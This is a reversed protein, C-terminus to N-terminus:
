DGRTWYESLSHVTSRIRLWIARHVQIWFSIARPTSLIISVCISYHFKHQSCQLFKLQCWEINNKLKNISQLAITLANHSHQVVPRPFSCSFPLRLFFPCNTPAHKALADTAFVALNIHTDLAVTELTIDAYVFWPFVVDVFLVLPRFHVNLSLSQRVTLLVTEFFDCFYQLVPLSNGFYSDSTLKVFGVDVTPSCNNFRQNGFIISMHTFLPTVVM